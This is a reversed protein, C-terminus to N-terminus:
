EDKIEIDKINHVDINAKKMIAKLKSITENKERNDM